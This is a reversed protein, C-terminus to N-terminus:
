SPDGEFIPVKYIADYRAVLDGLGYEYSDVLEAHDSHFLVQSTGCYTYDPPCSFLCIRAGAAEFREFTEYDWDFWRRLQSYSWFGFRHDRLLSNWSCLTCEADSSSCGVKRAYDQVLREDWHPPPRLDTAIDAKIVEELMSLYPDSYIGKGTRGEIRWVVHKNEKRTTKDM